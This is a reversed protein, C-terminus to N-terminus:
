GCDKLSKGHRCRQHEASKLALLPMLKFLIRKAPPAPRIGKELITRDLSFYFFFNHYEKAVWLGRIWLEGVSKGDWPLENGNADVVNVEVGLVPLGQYRKLEWYDEEGLELEPKVFNLTVLPSTETAGYAHVIEVGFEAFGKMMAVPPESAGSGIRLGELNPKPELKRLYELM